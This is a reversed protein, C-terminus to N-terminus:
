LHVSSRLYHARTFIPSHGYVVFIAVSSIGIFVLPAFKPRAFAHLCNTMLHVELSEFVNLLTEIASVYLKDNSTM